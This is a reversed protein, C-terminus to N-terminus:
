GESSMNWLLDIRRGKLRRDKGNGRNEMQCVEWRRLELTLETINDRCGCYAGRAKGWTGEIYVVKGVIRAYQIPPPANIEGNLPFGAGEVGKIKGKVCSIVSTPLYAILFCNNYSIALYSDGACIILNWGKTIDAWGEWNGSKQRYRNEIRCSVSSIMEWGAGNM